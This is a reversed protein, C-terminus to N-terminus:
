YSINAHSSNLRTSKRDLIQVRWHNGLKRSPNTSATDTIARTAIKAAISSGANDFAFFLARCTAIACSCRCSVRFCSNAFFGAAVEGTVVVVALSAMVGKTISCGAVTAGGAGTTAGGTEDVNAVM